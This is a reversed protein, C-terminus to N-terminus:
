DRETESDVTDKEMRKDWKAMCGSCMRMLRHEAYFSKTDDTVRHCMDCKMKESCQVYLRVYKFTIM